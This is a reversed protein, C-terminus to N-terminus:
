LLIRLPPGTYYTSTAVTYYTSTLFSCYELVVEKMEVNRKDGPSRGEKGLTEISAEGELGRRAGM